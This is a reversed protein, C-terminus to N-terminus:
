GDITLKNFAKFNDIHNQQSGLSFKEDPNKAREKSKALFHERYWTAAEEHMAFLVTRMSASQRAESSSGHEYQVPFNFRHALTELAEVFTLNEVLQVFRIADGGTNTSFCHFMEKDPHVYFSATKEQSFPSLGLWSKGSKKLKVHPAVVDYIAVRAKLDAIYTDKIRAM